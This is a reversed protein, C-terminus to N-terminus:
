AGEFVVQTPSSGDAVSDFEGDDGDDEGDDAESEEAQCADADFEGM